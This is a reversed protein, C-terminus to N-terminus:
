GIPEKDRVRQDVMGLEPTRRMRSVLAGAALGLLLAVAMVILSGVLNPKTTMLFVLGLLLTLVTTCVTALVPDDIHRELRKM